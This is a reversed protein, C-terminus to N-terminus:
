GRPGTALYIDLTIVPQAARVTSGKARRVDNRNGGLDAIALGFPM